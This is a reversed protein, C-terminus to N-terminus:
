NCNFTRSSQCPVHFTGLQIPREMQGEWEPLLKSWSDDDHKLLAVFRLRPLGSYAPAAAAHFQFAPDITGSAMSAQNFSQFWCCLPQAMQWLLLLVVVFLM